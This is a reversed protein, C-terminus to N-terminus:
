LEIKISEVFRIAKLAKETHFLYQNVYKQAASSRLAEM